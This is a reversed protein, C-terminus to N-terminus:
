AVSVISLTHVTFLVETPFVFFEHLPAKICGFRLLQLPMLEDKGEHRCVHRVNRQTFGEMAGELAGLRLFVIAGEKVGVKFGVFFLGFTGENADFDSSGDYAGDIDCAGDV